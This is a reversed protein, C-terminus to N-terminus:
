SAPALGGPSVVEAGASRCNQEIRGPGEYRNSGGAFLAAALSLAVDVSGDRFFRGMM